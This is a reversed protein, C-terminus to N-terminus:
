RSQIWSRTPHRMPKCLIGGSWGAQGLACDAVGNAMTALCDGLLERDLNQSHDLHVGVLGSVRWAMVFDLETERLQRLMSQAARIGQRQSPSQNRSGIRVFEDFQRRMGLGNLATLLMMVAVHPDANGKAISIEEPTPLGLVYTVGLANLGNYRLIQIVREFPSLGNWRRAPLEPTRTPKTQLKM